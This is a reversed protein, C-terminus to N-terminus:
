RGAVADRRRLLEKVAWLMLATLIGQLGLVVLMIAVLAHGIQFENTSYYYYLVQSGAYLGVALLISSPLGIVLLSHDLSVMALLRRLVDLGHGVPSRKSKQAYSIEVPLQVITLGLHQAQIVIESSVAMGQEIPSLAALATRSYARYGNQSDLHTRTALDLVRQGLKRYVPVATSASRSGIVLDASAAAQIFRPIDQPDHQGDGDLVILVDADRVRAEKFLTCVAAGYGKNHVHTVVTAGALTALETSNDTSGDDVVLVPAYKRAALVVSGITREENFCPIGVIIKSM